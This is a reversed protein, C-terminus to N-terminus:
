RDVGGKHREERSGVGEGPTLCNGAKLRIDGADEAFVMIEEAGEEEM